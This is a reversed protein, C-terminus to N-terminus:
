MSSGLPRIGYRRPARARRRSGIGRVSRLGEAQLRDTLTLVLGPEDEVLLISVAMLSDLRRLLESRARTGERAGLTSSYLFCGRELPGLEGGGTGGMSEVTRKVLALGLGSGRSRRDDGRVFPEFLRDLDRREIGPGRDAVSLVLERGVGKEILEARVGLWEGSSAYKTANAILNVLARRLADADLSVTAPATFHTEVTM